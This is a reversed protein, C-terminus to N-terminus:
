MYRYSYHRCHPSVAVLAVSYDYDRMEMAVKEAKKRIIICVYCRDHLM